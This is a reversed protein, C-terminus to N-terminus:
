RSMNMIDLVFHLVQVYSGDPQKVIAPGGSDGYCTGRGNSFLFFSASSCFTLILIQLFRGSTCMMTETMIGFLRNCEDNDLIEVQM